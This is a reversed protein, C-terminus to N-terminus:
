KKRKSGVKKVKGSTKKRSSSAKSSAKKSAKKKSTKSVTSKPSSKKSTKKSAKKKSTEKGLVPLSDRIVRVRDLIKKALRHTVDEASKNKAM